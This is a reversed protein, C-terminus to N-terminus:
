SMISCLTRLYPSTNSVYKYLQNRKAKELKELGAIASIIIIGGSGSRLQKEKLECFGFRNDTFELIASKVIPSACHHEFIKLLMDVSEQDFEYIDLIIRVLWFLEFESIFNSSVRKNITTWLEGNDQIEALHRYLDKILNPYYQFVLEILISAVKKDQKMLSLALEVDEEAVDSSQIINKLYDIEEPELCVDKNSKEYGCAERKQLLSIKIRDLKREEFDLDKSGFQTKKKNLFLAKEGLLQQLVM